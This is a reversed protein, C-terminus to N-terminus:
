ALANRNFDFTITIQFCEFFLLLLLIDYLGTFNVGSSYPFLFILEIDYLLFFVCILLYQVPLRIVKQKTPKFGCEYFDRRALKMFGYRKLFERFMFCNIVNFIILGLITVSTVSSFVEFDGM